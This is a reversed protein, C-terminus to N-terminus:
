KASHGGFQNRLASLVKGTYSPKKQSEKRFKLAGEIIRALVGLEKATKVTWEGEGTLAVKGSVSKFDDGYIELGNRLWGVLRSEIVSGHNYIEAVRSLDFKFKSKKLIAFGEALAQMMGYEIGNHIMKVFHGAGAGEFFEVGGQVALDEFLPRLATFDKKNGGAMISAGFRAGGPGGSVGADAFRIGKKTLVKARRITDKYFSNGGDIVFDGKSLNPLLLNITEDVAGGAPVMLWIIRPSPLKSLFDEVNFGKDVGVVNWGKEKLRDAINKGMKGLGIVGIEKKFDPYPNELLREEIYNSAIVPENTDPQYFRIPVLDKEWARVIPDTYRWMPMIEDTSVFLTQDGLLCDYLLKLYEEVYQMRGTQDRFPLKFSKQEMEMKLGARKLWLNVVIGEEPELSFIVRNKYHEKIDLPCLCPAPHRFTVIIEKRNEGIRKGAELIFPVGEWKPADFYLVSKFYTEVMSDEKVGPIARYSRYQSRYTTNKVEELTPERLTALIQARSNRITEPSFSMPHEMAILAAMQLLHNQGVDRFAGVGEYFTGRGEAGKEELLKIEVSEISEGSWSKEFVGNSFRFALINQLMEKALYHDIRYIQEERFLKSLMKELNKATKADKGFPKEVVVRTFGEEPSCPITLGSSSLRSAISEYFDPSVALYFIKNTCFKWEQDTLLLKDALKKYASDDDFHGKEFHFLNIFGALTNREELVHADLINRVHARFEEDNLNRRSFGIIKFHEPLKKDKYLHYLAPVIKKTMLDGTAGFVVVITPMINKNNGDEAV